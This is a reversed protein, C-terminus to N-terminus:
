RLKKFLNKLDKLKVPDESVVSDKTNEKGEEWTITFRPKSNEPAKTLTDGKYWGYEENLIGKLTQKEEAIDEKIIDQAQGFDYSVNTKNAQCVIKLPITAKGTNDVKVNGFAADHRNNDRAKRSLVESLLLRVHYTYDGDFTHTGYITFNVASSNILMKPITITRNRIYLDNELHSFSITKLEDLDIYSSLSKAPEFDILRGNKISMHSEAVLTKTIINFEKDLPTLMTLDGTLTGNLNDSVIFEQGFNNFSKFAQNIDIENVKLNAKSIYSDKGQRGILLDGSLTGGLGNVKVDTFTLLYPRYLLTCSFNGAHFDKNIVSDAKLRINMRIDSPFTSTSDKKEETKKKDSGTFTTPIFTDVGVDGLINMTENKGSLWGTFNQMEANITFHQDLVSFSLNETKLNNDLYVAGNVDSLVLDKAAITAGFDKFILSAIPHLSPLDALSFRLSDSLHGDLSISGRVSGEQLKIFDSKILKRLDEFILDGELSLSFHPAALNELKMSGSFYASGFSTTLTDLSFLFTEPSNSNGNTLSGRFSLNNVSLGAAMNNFTGDSLSFSANFHPTGEEGYPGAIICTLDVLGEPKLNEAVSKPKSPLFAKIDAINIKKGKIVMDISKISYNITGDVDFNLGALEVSGRAISLSNDTKRVKIETKAPINMFRMGNINVDSLNAELSATIYIGTKFIDGSLNAERILGAVRLDSERDSYATEINKFTIANLRFSKNSESKTSFIEYNIDGNRDCLLNLEGDRAIISKIAVTGTLLSPLDISLSLASVYLLTNNNEAPLHKKNYYKSPLVLLDNFRVTINPFSEFITVKLDKYSIKTNVSENINKLLSTEIQDHKILTFVGVAIISTIVVTIIVILINKIIRM